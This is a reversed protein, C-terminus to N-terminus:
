NWAPERVSKSGPITISWPGPELDIFSWEFNIDRRVSHCSKISRDNVAIKM